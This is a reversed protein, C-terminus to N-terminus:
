SKSPVSLFSYVCQTFNFNSFIMLPEPVAAKPRESYSLQILSEGKALGLGNEDEGTLGKRIGAEESATLVPGLQSPTTPRSNSAPREKVSSSEGRPRGSKTPSAPAANTGLPAKPTASPVVSWKATTAVARYTGIHRDWKGVRVWQMLDLNLVNVSHLDAFALQTLGGGIQYRGCFIRM